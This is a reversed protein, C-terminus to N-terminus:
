QLLDVSVNQLVTWNGIFKMWFGDVSETPSLRSM